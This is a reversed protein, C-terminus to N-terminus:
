PQRDESSTRLRRNLVENETKERTWGGEIAAASLAQDNKCIWKIDRLRIEEDALIKRRTTIQAELRNRQIGQETSMKAVAYQQWFVERARENLTTPDIGLETSCWEEFASEDPMEGETADLKDSATDVDGTLEALFDITGEATLLFSTNKDAGNALVSTERLVSRTALTFPGEQDRGNVFISEGPLIEVLDSEEFIAGISAQWSHGNEAMELVRKVSPSLEPDATIVGGLVLTQGDNVIEDPNTQGLIMDDSLDHKIAIPIAGEAELGELDVVIPYDFGDVHLKGGTYAVIEFHRAKETVVPETRFEANMDVFLPM